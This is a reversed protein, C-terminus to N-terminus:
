KSNKKLTEVLKITEMAERVDHTRIIDAGNMLALTQLVITGTLAEEPRTGLVKNIMSKRSVGAMVPVGLSHFSDLSALLSYNHDITKGFGFGPDVIISTIGYTRAEMIQKEFFYTVEAVVDSYMPNDQMTEPKGKMHMMIYPVKLKAITGMMGAEFRGGYIDNVMDAGHEVVARAILPRYTDVSIIVEPFYNRIAQITPLLRELESTQCVEEAGPRSSIAGIDIVSAGESLMKEAHRLQSDISLYRGGDFFSDATINLIGMVAPKTLDLVKGKCDLRYM